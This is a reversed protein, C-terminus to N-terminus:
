VDEGGMRPSVELVLEQLDVDVPELVARLGGVARDVGVHELMEKWSKATRCRDLADDGRGPGTLPNLMRAIVTCSRAAPTPPRVRVSIGYGCAASFSTM